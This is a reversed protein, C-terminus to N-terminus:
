LPHCVLIQDTEHQLSIPTKHFRHYVVGEFHFVAPLFNTHASVMTDDALDVTNNDDFVLVTEELTARFGKRFTRCDLNYAFAKLTTTRVTYYNNPGRTTFQAVKEVQMTASESFLEVRENLVSLPVYSKSGKELERFLNITEFDDIPMSYVQDENFFVYVKDGVSVEAYENLISKMVEDVVYDSDSLPTGGDSLVIGGDEELETRLSAYGNEYAAFVEASNEPTTAIAEELTNYYDQLSGEDGFHLRGDEISVGSRSNKFIGSHSEDISNEVGLDDFDNQCSNLFILGWVLFLCTISQKANPIFCLLQKTANSKTIRNM